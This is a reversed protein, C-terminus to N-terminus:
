ERETRFGPLFVPSEKEFLPRLSELDHCREIKNRYKELAGIDVASELYDRYEEIDPARHFDVESGDRGAM